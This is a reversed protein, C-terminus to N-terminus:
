NTSKKPTKNYDLLYKAIKKFIQASTVGWYISTRPRDLKVIIVFEPDEAPWFWAFSAYTSAQWKEYWWKSAIQSTWTKWALTYGEVNWIKAVWNNISDVLMKTIIRSTEPKIVRYDEETKYKLEKWNSYVIKDVIHPKIYVWWNALISYATAMQLPTVSVWLWYSSTLLNSISWHNLERITSSVEWSLSIETKTDFWFSKLYNYALVRGYRQAIRIMWVNCSYNLAHAFSHYWLCKDSVNSITFQDIKLSWNDQYMSNETIEWTDLWISVTFAKMISGPEYLDSIAWNKYVEPWFGNVYKYKIIAPNWLEDDTAQRLLIKESNYYFWKWKKSDEVFVPYWKLDILVDPYKWYSVKELEYVDWPKNPDFSPYNAMSIIEWTKPNMIVVTWKNARYEKVWEELIKEVENQINRDITSYIRAWKWFLDWNELSIPDITRGNIDTKAIIYWKNWKLIEDFYWEIWYQWKGANDVFWIIQSATTDEPYYRQPYPTLIIFNLISDEIDIIGRKYADNEDSIYKEIKESTEISLKSLLSAYRKNRKRILNEIRTQLIPIIKALKEAIVEKNTVEEPNVYLNTKNVYVWKLWLSKIENAENLTLNDVLLVSTIKTQSLKQKLRWVIKDKIYKDNYEFDQLDLVKLFSTLNDKCTKQDKWVCIETFIIDRLFIILKAKDWIWMPDIALDNLSVSTALINPNKTYINWRTVPIEVKWIQQKNALEKYYDYNLVTYSFVKSIIILFALFFVSFIITERKVFKLNRLAHTIKKRM